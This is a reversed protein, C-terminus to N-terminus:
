KSGWGKQIKSKIANLGKSGPSLDSAEILLRKGAPSGMLTKVQDPSLGLREAGRQAWAAEGRAPSREAVRRDGEQAFQPQLSTSARLKESLREVAAAFGAPNKEAMEAFRPIKALQKAAADYTRAQISNGFTRGFKNAAALAVATMPEGRALGAAGVVTDTLSVARNAQNRGAEREAIDSAKELLGHKRFAAKLEDKEGGLSSVASDMQDRLATRKEFRAANSGATDPFSKNYNIKNDITKKIQQAKSLTVNGMGALQEAADELAKVAQTEGAERLLGIEESQLIRMGAEAGDVVADDGGKALIKEVGAWSQEKLKDVRKSIRGSTGLWPIAKKDLLERGMAIDEGSKAMVKAQTPTPLGVARAAKGAAKTKAWQSAKSALAGGGEALLQGGVGLAGGIAANKGRQDIQFPDVEGQVDGPNSAGGLIAGAKGAAALRQAASAGKAVAGLGGTGVATAVLGAATGAGAAVPHESKQLAQRAINEDRRQLYNQDVAVDNGTLANMAGTFTPEIAAQIQPLYGLTAANGFSELAAEGARTKPQPESQTAGSRYRDWPGGPEGANQAPKAYKEWPGAM